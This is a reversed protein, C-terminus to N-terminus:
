LNFKEIAHYLSTVMITHNIDGERLHQKLREMTCFYLELDEFEDLQPDKIKKCNRAIYTHMQNTQLAPNPYHSLVLEVDESDYGTEELLERKAGELSTENLRPDMSGGPVEIHIEGSAHRYQKLLIVEGDETIPLVNVWDPFDMVFYRPMVRGDPLECKDSRLRFIGSTFLDESELTKWKMPEGSAGLM